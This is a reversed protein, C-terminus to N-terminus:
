RTPKVQQGIRRYVKETLEKETHGLLSSAAALDAIESTSKARIDRFQFAKIREALDDNGAAVAAKNCAPASLTAATLSRSPKEDCLAKM